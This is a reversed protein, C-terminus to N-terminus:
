KILHEHKIITHEKIVFCIHVTPVLSLAKKVIVM